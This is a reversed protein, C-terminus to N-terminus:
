EDDTELAVRFICKVRKGDGPWYKSAESCVWEKTKEEWGSGVPMPLDFAIAFIAAAVENKGFSIKWKAARKREMMEDYLLRVMEVRKGFAEDSERDHRHVEGEDTDYEVDSVQELEGDEDKILSLEEETLSEAPAEIM